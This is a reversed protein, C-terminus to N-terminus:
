REKGTVIRFVTIGMKSVSFLIFWIGFSQILITMTDSTIYQVFVPLFHM